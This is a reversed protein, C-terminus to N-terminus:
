NENVPFTVTTNTGNGTNKILLKGNLKKTFIETLKIGLSARPKDLITEDIGKGNDSILLTCNGADSKLNITITPSPTNEFAHKYANSIVESIIMGLAICQDLNLEIEDIETLISLNKYESEYVSFNNEILNSIYDKACIKGANESTNMLEHVLGMADIRRQAADIALKSQADELRERQMDLLSSIAQLNNKVRHNVESLLVNKEEIQKQIIQNTKFLENKEHALEKTREDVLKQLRGTRYKFIIYSILLIKILAFLRFWINNYWLPKVELEYTLIESEVGQSRAVIKLLYDGHSLNSIQIQNDQARIWEEKNAKKSKSTISYFLDTHHEQGWNKVSLTIEVRNYPYFYIKNDATQIKNTEVVIETVRVRPKQTKENLFYEDYEVIGTNGAFQIKGNPLHVAAPTFNNLFNGYDLSFSTIKENTQLLNEIRSVGNDTLIWYRNQNDKFINKVNDSILGNSTTYNYIQNNFYIAFGNDSSVIFIKGEIERVFSIAKSDFIESADIRCIKNQDIIDIGELNAVWLRNLNDITTNSLANSSLGWTKDYAYFKKNDTNLMVLGRDSTTFWLNNNWEVTNWVINESDPFKYATTKKDQWKMPGTAYTSFWTGHKESFLVNWIHQSVFRYRTTTNEEHKQVWNGNPMYWLASDKDFVIDRNLQAPISSNIRFLNNGLRAIGGFPMAMWINDNKDAIVKIVYPSPIGDKQAFSEVKGDKRWLILGGSYDSMWLGYKNEVFSYVLERGNVLTVKSIKDNEFKLLGHRFSGFYIVGNYKYVSMCTFQVVSSKLYDSTYSSITNGEMVDFGIDNTIYIKGTEKDNFVQRIVDSSLGHSKNYVSVQNNYLKFVGHYWTGFWLANDTDQTIRAVKIDEIEPNKVQYFIDDKLYGFGSHFSIWVRNENDCFVSNIYNSPLGNKSSYHKALKGDYCLLGNDGSAVWLNEESDMAIDIIDTSFFGHSKDLYKINTTANDRFIMDPVRMRHIKQMTIAEFEFTMKDAPKTIKRITKSIPIPTYVPASLPENQKVEKDFPDESVIPIIELAENEILEWNLVFDRQALASALIM